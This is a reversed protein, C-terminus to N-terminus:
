WSNREQEIYEEVNVGKWIEKGLGQLDTAKYRKGAAPPVTTDPETRTDRLRALAKELLHIVEQALSRHDAEAQKKLRQYLPAPFNKVNIVSM